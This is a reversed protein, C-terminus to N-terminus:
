DDDDVEGGFFSSSTHFRGDADRWICAVGSKWQSIWVIKKINSDLYGAVGSSWSSQWEVKETIPNYVGAIGTRWGGSASEVKGTSPNFVSSTPTKWGGNTAEWKGTNPNYASSIGTKWSTNYQVSGDSNTNIIAVGSKWQSIWVIEGNLPNRYVTLGSGWSKECQYTFGVTFDFPTLDIPSIQGKQFISESGGYSGLLNSKDYVVETKELQVVLNNLSNSLSRYRSLQEIPVAEVSARHELLVRNLNGRLITTSKILQTKQSAFSKDTVESVHLRSKVVGGSVLLQLLQNREQKVKGFRVEFQGISSPDVTAFSLTSYINFLLASLVIRYKVVFEGVFPRKLLLQKHL